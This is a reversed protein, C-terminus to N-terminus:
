PLVAVGKPVVLLTRPGAITALPAANDHSGPACVTVSGTGEPGGASNAVYIEGSGDVAIGRPLFLGTQDGRISTQTGSGIISVSDVDGVIGSLRGDSAVYVTGSRDVAVAHPFELRTIVTM